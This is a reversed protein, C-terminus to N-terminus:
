KTILGVWLDAVNTGTQGCKWLSGIKGLAEYSSCSEIAGDLVMDINAAHEFGLYDSFGGAADTPGDEGDTGGFLWYSKRVLPNSMARIMQLALHQNRGGLGPQGCLKLHTEGGGVICCPPFGPALDRLSNVVLGEVVGAMGNVDLEWSSGLDLVPWGLASAKSKAAVVAKRNNGILVFKAWSLSEKSSEGIAKDELVKLAAKPVQSILGYKDLYGLAMIATGNDFVTPGSGIVGPCDGVVDSIALTWFMCDIKGGGWVQALRGGKIRSLQKRVTNMEHIKAGSRHLLQTVLLKDSLNIGIEPLPMMASAGGSLLVIALDGDKAKKAIQLQQEAGDVGRQTPLNHGSPRVPALVVGPSPEGGQGDVVHVLGGVQKGPPLGALVGLVMAKAAKGGGLLIVRSSSRIANSLEPNNRMENEVLFSPSVADVGARWISELQQRMEMAAKPGDSIFTM